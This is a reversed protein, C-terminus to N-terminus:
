PLFRYQGKLEADYSLSHDSGFMNYTAKIEVYPCSLTRLLGIRQLQPPSLHIFM